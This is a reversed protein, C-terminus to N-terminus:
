SIEVFYPISNLALGVFLLTLSSLLFIQYYPVNTELTKQVFVGKEIQDITTYATELQAKNRADFYQGGSDTIAQILQQVREKRTIEAGM